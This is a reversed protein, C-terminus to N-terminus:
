DGEPLSSTEIKWGPNQYISSTSYDSSGEEATTLRFHDFAIPNLYKNQNWNYGEYAINTNVVRYPLLYKGDAKSSVNAGSQGCEILNIVSLPKDFEEGNIGTDPTMYRKYNEDWLNFGVTHYNQMKDLARWRKLDNFRFGEAALEIRRERRINYLVNSVLQDGSYRALDIEKSLDTYDLTTQISNADMGVRTRLAKWYKMSNDDLNGNNLECDAEMYNLYAEAARYVVCATYSPLSPGQAPDTMLGKKITYGTPCRNEAIESIPARYYYGARNVMAEIMNASTSLMDGPMTTNMLLRPDRNYSIDEYTKDGKYESSAYIPKGDSMLYTDMMSKTYGSNGGGNRQLYGVTYHIVSPTISGDYQRWLLVENVSSLSLSNFMAQYDTALQYKEAVIKAAEKATELFYRSEQDIDISFDKLYDMNAGPWGPGGPVRATGKHYKEWTGEYLAVRSKFLAACDKTLRNSMPPTDKMYYYASDLDSIIFKAVENRPRRKSAERVAEYNDVVMTKIIPFDGLSMLKGAYILARFFYMEGLYHKNNTENGKLEGNELRPRVTNIFYNVTRINSFDWDGGSQGVRTQGKVFLSNPSSGAQNDSNNDNAFVGIGFGSHTPFLGYMNAAYSALDNENFLYKTTPVSDLPERDLFDNCSSVSLALAATAMLFINKKM